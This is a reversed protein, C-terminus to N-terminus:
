QSVLSLVGRVEHALLPKDIVACAGCVLAAQTNQEDGPSSLVIFRTSPSIARFQSPDIFFRPEYFVTNVRHTRLCDSLWKVLVPTNPADGGSPFVLTEEPAMLSVLESALIQSRCVITNM